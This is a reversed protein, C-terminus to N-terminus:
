KLGRYKRLEILAAMGFAIVAAKWNLDGAALSALCAIGGVLSANVIQELFVWGLRNRPTVPTEETPPPSNGLHNVFLIDM